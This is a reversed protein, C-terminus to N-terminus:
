GPIIIPKTQSGIRINTPLDTYASYPAQSRTIPILYM